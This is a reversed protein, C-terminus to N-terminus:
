NYVTKIVSVTLTKTYYQLREAYKQGVLCVNKRWVTFVVSEEEVGDYEMLSGKVYLCYM